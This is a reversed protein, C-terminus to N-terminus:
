GQGTLGAVLATVAAVGVIDSASCGRSLDNVPKALGQILPGFAQASGLRETLKYCLNGCNLDPFILINARGAVPSGPAKKAAVEPVLAADGQLEGDILIDPAMERALATAERVKDVLPHKASGKTSFSMMAVRPELAYVMAATRATVVAIEALQAADPDPVVGADAFIILGDEGFEKLPSVMAFYSSVTKIGPAPGIIQLAPRLVDATAHAAGAVYGDARGSAVLAAAFYLNDDLLEDAEELSLGKHKRREFVLGALEGRVETAAPDIVDAATIDVRLEAATSSVAEQSGVFTLGTFGEELIRVAALYMRKDDTEPLVINRINEGARSKIKAIFDQDSM